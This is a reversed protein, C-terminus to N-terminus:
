GKKKAQSKFEIKFDYIPMGDQGVEGIRSGLDTMRVHVSLTHGDDLEFRAVRENGDKIKVPKHTKAMEPVAAEVADLAQATQALTDSIAGVAQDVMDKPLPNLSKSQASPNINDDSPM